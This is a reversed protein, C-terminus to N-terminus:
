GLATLEGIGSNGPNLPKKTAKPEGLNGGGVGFRPDAMFREHSQENNSHHHRHNHHKKPLADSQKLNFHGGLAMYLLAAIGTSGVKVFINLILMVLAFKISSEGSITDFINVDGAGWISCFIVDLLISFGSFFICLFLPKLEHAYACYCTWFSLLVNYAPFSVTGATQTLFAFCIQVWGLRELWRGYKKAGASNVETSQKVKSKKAKSTKQRKERRRINKM